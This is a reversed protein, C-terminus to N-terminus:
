TIPVFVVVDQSEGFLLATFTEEVALGVMVLEAVAALTQKLLLACAM